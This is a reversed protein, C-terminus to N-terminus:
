MSTECFCVFLCFKIQGSILFLNEPRFIFSSGSQGGSQFNRGMKQRLELQEQCRFHREM